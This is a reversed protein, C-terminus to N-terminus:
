RVLEGLVVWGAGIALMVVEDDEAPTYSPLCPWTAAEPPQGDPKVRVKGSVVEVVTGTKVMKALKATVMADVHAALSTM